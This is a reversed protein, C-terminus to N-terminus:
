PCPTGKWKNLDEKIKKEDAYHYYLFFHLYKPLFYEKVLSGLGICTKKSKYEPIENNQTITFLITNKIKNDTNM